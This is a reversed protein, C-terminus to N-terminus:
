IKQESCITFQPAFTLFEKQTSVLEKVLWTSVLEKVLRYIVARHMYKILAFTTIRQDHYKATIFNYLGVFYQHILAQPYFRHKLISTLISSLTHDFNWYNIACFFPWRHHGECNM